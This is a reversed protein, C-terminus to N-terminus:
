FLKFGTLRGGGGAGSFYELALNRALLVLELWSGEEGGGGGWVCVDVWKFSRKM